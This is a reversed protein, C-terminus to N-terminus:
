EPIMNTVNKHLCGCMYVCHAIDLNAFIIRPWTWMDYLLDIICNNHCALWSRWKCCLLYLITASSTGIQWLFVSSLDVLYGRTSFLDLRLLVLQWTIWVFFCKPRFANIKWSNDSDDRQRVANLQAKQGTVGCTRWQMIVKWQSDPRLYM